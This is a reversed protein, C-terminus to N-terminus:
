GKVSGHRDRKSCYATVTMLRGRFKVEEKEEERENDPLASNILIRAPQQEEKYEHQGTEYQRSLLAVM